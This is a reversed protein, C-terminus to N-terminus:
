TRTNWSSVLTSSATSGSRREQRCWPHIATGFPGGIREAIMRRIRNNGISIITPEKTQPMAHTVDIGRFETIEPNDDVLMTVHDGQAEVIDQIVKAHGSAGYLIM